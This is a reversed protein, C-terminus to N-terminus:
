LHPRWLLEGEGPKPTLALYTTCRMTSARLVRTRSFLDADGGRCALARSEDNNIIDYRQELFVSPSSHSRSSRFMVGSSGASCPSAGKTSGAHDLFLPRRSGSPHTETAILTTGRLRFADDKLDREIDYKSAM